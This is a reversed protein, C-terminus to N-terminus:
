CCIPWDHEFNESAAKVINGVALNRIAIDMHRGKFLSSYSRRLIKIM